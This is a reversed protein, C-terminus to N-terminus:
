TVLPYRNSNILETKKQIWKKNLWDNSRTNLILIDKEQSKLGCALSYMRWYFFNNILTKSRNNIDKKITKSYKFWSILNKAIKM